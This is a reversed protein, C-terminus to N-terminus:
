NVFESFAYRNIINYSYYKFNLISPLKLYNTSNVNETLLNVFILIFLLRVKENHLRFKLNSHGDILVNLNSDLKVITFSNYVLSLM